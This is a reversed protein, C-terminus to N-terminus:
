LAEVFTVAGLDMLIGDAFVMGKVVNTELRVEMKVDDKWVMLQNTVSARLAPFVSLEGSNKLSSTTMYIKDHNQFKVMTGRPIFGTNTVQVVKSNINGTAFTDTNKMVRSNIVGINQPTIIELLETSGKEVFLAFLDNAGQTKPSLNTTLEWRQAPRRSVSRKLSLTDSIFEPVNSKLTLPVVFQAIIEDNEYIGYM